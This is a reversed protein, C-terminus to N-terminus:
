VDGSGVLSTPEVAAEAEDLLAILDTEDEFRDQPDKAHMREMAVSFAPPVQLEVQEITPPPLGIIAHGIERPTKGTFAPRGTLLEIAVSALAFQDARHDFGGGLLMEPAMYRPSGVVRDAGTLTSWAQRVTGFDVLKIPRGAEGLLNEPKIDRHILARQHAYALARAVQAVVSVVRPVDLKRRSKLQLRLTRGPVFEMVIYPRGDDARIGVDYLKAINPHDLASLVSAERRFRAVAEARRDADLGEVRLVKIAVLRDFRPDWGRYVDGGGGSGLPERLVYRGTPSPARVGNLLASVEARVQAADFPKELFRAAGSRVMDIVADRNARGSMMVVPVNLGALQIVELLELGSMRPMVLDALVLDVAHTKLRELAEDGDAARVVTYGASSLALDAFDLLDPEDDVILITAPQGVYSSPYM